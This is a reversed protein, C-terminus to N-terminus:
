PISSLIRFDIDNGKEQNQLRLLFQSLKQQQIEDSQYIIFQEELYSLKKDKTLQELDNPSINKFDSDLFDSSFGLLKIAALQQSDLMLMVAKKLFIVDKYFSFINLDQNVHELIIKKQQEGLDDSIQQNKKKYLKFSFISNMIQKTLSKSQLAKLKNINNDLYGLDNPEQFKRDTLLYAYSQGKTQVIQQNTAQNFVVTSPQKNLNTNEEQIMQNQPSREQPSIYQNNFNTIINERQQPTVAEEDQMISQQQQIKLFIDQNHSINLKERVNFKEEKKIELKKEQECLNKESLDFQIQSNIVQKNKKNDLQKKFKFDLNPFQICNDNPEEKNEVFQDCNSEILEIDQKKDNNLEQNSMQDSKMNGNKVPLNILNNSLIENENKSVQKNILPSQIQQLLKNQKLISLYKGTYFNKLFLTFFDHEIRKSSILRGIIGLLLLLSFIGNVLALIQPLTSYQIQVRQIIEDIQLMILSYPGEGDKLASQRQMSQSIQNYQIPSSYKSENQIILGQKVSTTQTQMNLITIISQSSFTYINVNRYNVQMEQSTTNYQSTFIKFKLGANVGNVLADSEAQSACNDPITTKVSDLDLCSYTFIQIQSYLNQKTNLAFTYNSLSSFDLCQYGQLSPNTCNIVKIPIFQSTDNTQYRFFAMYILYTKTANTYLAYSEGPDMKFGILDNNLGTEVLGETIFNQSRFNPEIQNSSFLMIEYIFYAITTLIVFSSLAFGTLTGKNPQNHGVNFQFQSSFIDLKKFISKM